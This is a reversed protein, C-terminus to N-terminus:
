LAETPNGRSVAGQTENIIDADSPSFFASQNRLFRLVLSRPWTPPAQPRPSTGSAHPPHTGSDGRPGAAPGKWTVKKPRQPLRQSTGPSPPSQLDGRGTGPSLGRLFPRRLRSGGPLAPERGRQPPGPLACHSTGLAGWTGGGGGSSLCSLRKEQCQFSAQPPENPGLPAVGPDGPVWSEAARGSAM